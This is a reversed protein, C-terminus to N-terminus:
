VADPQGAAWRSEWITGARGPRVFDTPSGLPEVHCLRADPAGHPQRLFM